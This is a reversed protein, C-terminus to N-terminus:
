FLEFELHEGVAKCDLYNSKGEQNPVGYDYFDPLEPPIACRILAWNLGEFFAHRKIEAAGKETGLRNEPEKVLLGRILDKAQFSVNPNDPFKLSQLVVNAITEENTAGKFPTKGYLLEYLFIGFTWWDVAAGHGEGKIIEPALYEHTGVFSNSRADTPEAVLQPLSKFRAILDSKKLKKMMMRHQKGKKKPGSGRSLKPRFCSPEICNSGTRSGSSLRMADAHLPSSSNLLTPSVTCRLSLDFDTVMIHGDDRVLINEPKLDRYIVGLMHLYELALLVEAVYFRAAPEPFWRGPQKQRLVHLDGGPCCEMVLCSLNDSTFHAYLTPLFPHDLMKLIDKETQARSMKNRRELFENDMVKIAFLCNTGTLEALYVTGIDGCGLKKLLNFHRLGLSGLGHQARIHQIAEWRVDKSMHPRNGFSSRTMINNSQQQVEEESISTTSSNYGDGKNIIESNENVDEIAAGGLSLKNPPSDPNMVVSKESFSGIEVSQESMFVSDKQDVEKGSLSDEEMIENNGYESVDKINKNRFASTLSVHSTESNMLDLSSRIKDLKTEASASIEHSSEYSSSSFDSALEDKACIEHPEVLSDKSPDEKAATNKLSFHCRHCLLEKAIPDYFGDVEDYVNTAKKKMSGKNRLAPKAGGGRPITRTLKAVRKGNVITSSPTNAYLLRVKRVSKLGVVTKNNGSGPSSSGFNKNEISMEQDDLSLNKHKKLITMEDCYRKSTQSNQSSSHIKLLRLQQSISDSSSSQDEGLLEVLVAKGEESAGSGPEVLVSGYVSGGTSTSKPIRKTAATESAKTVCLDRLAQKLTAPEANRKSPSRPGAPNAPSKLANRQLPTNNRSSSTAGVQYSPIMGSTRISISEFLQNIDDELSGRYGLKLVPRELDKDDVISSRSHPITTSKASYGISNQRDEKEEVIECKGAFSGM